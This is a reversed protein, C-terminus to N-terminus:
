CTTGHIQMVLFDYYVLHRFNAKGTNPKSSSVGAAWAYLTLRPFSGSKVIPTDEKPGTGDNATSTADALLKKRYNPEINYKERAEMTAKWEVSTMGNKIEDYDGAKIKRALIDLEEISLLPIGFLTVITNENSQIAKDADFSGTVNSSTEYIHLMKNNDGNLVRMM